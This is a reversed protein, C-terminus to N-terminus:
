ECEFGSLLLLLVLSLITIIIILLIHIYKAFFHHADKTNNISFTLPLKYKYTMILKRGLTHNYFVYIICM